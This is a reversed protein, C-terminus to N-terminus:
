DDLPTTVATVEAFGGLGLSFDLWIDEEEGQVAM